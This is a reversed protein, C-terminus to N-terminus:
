QADHVETAFDSDLMLDRTDFDYRAEKRRGVKDFLVIPRNSWMQFSVVTGVRDRLRRAKEAIFGDPDKVRVRDGVSFKTTNAAM